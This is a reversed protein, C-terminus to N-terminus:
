QFKKLSKYTLLGKKSRGLNTWILKPIGPLDTRKVATKPNRRKSRGGSLAMGRRAGHAMEWFISPNDWGLALLFRRGIDVTPSLNDGTM